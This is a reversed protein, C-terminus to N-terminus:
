GIEFGLIGELDYNFIKFDLFYINYLQTIVNQSLMSFYSRLQASTTSPKTLHPFTSSLIGSLQLLYESDPYLTEYKGIFDYKLLCPRCLDSIPKWHENFTVNEPGTLYAAFEVFTVDDGKELSMKSANIRYNKIIYRGFRSQFYSSRVHNQDFKNRYASLLREFPHRVFLFKRYTSLMYKIEPVTFNNLTLFMGRRHALHAPISLADSTNALGTLIMLVRKWNTCAVKPVYCYLLRHNLDVIIHELLEVDTTLDDITNKSSNNKLYLRCMKNLHEQRDLYVMQELMPNFDAADAYNGSKDVLSLYLYSCIGCVVILTTMFLKLIKINAM